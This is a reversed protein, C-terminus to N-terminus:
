GNIIVKYDYIWVTWQQILRQINCDEIFYLSFLISLNSLIAKLAVCISIRIIFEGSYVEIYKKNNSIQFFITISILINFNHLHNKSYLDATRLKHIYFYLSIKEFLFDDFIIVLILLIDYFTPVIRYAMIWIVFWLQRSYNM